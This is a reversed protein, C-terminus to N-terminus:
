SCINAYSWHFGGATKYRGNCAASISSQNVNLKCAAEKISMFTEDREVCYVAKCHNSSIKNNRNGYNCNAKQSTWELNQLCNNSPNEDKHNVVPFNDPNPLYAEAVLRHIYFHKNYGNNRLFVEKYGHKKTCPKLFIKRRHSWVRGCSTIAYLGEFGKIDKM